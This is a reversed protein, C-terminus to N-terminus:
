DMIDGIKTATSSVGISTEELPSQDSGVLDAVDLMKEGNLLQAHTLSLMRPTRHINKEIDNTEAGSAASITASPGDDDDTDFYSEEEDVERFKRQDERAKESLVVHTSRGMTSGHFYGSNVNDNPNAPDADNPDAMPPKITTKINKEYAKRLITFTNVYPSSVDELSPVLTSPRALHKTVIHELLVKINEARIFDCMEVIASSILNDGVPNARFAEFVPSFLDHQIIHRHYFEDNM